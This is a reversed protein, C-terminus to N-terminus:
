RTISTAFSTVLIIGNKSKPPSPGKFHGVKVSFIFFDLFFLACREMSAPERAERM